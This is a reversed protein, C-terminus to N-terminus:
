LNYTSAISGKSTDGVYAPNFVVYYKNDGITNLTLAFNLQYGDMLNVSKIKNAFNTTFSEVSVGTVSISVDDKPATFYTVSSGGKVTYLQTSGVILTADKDSNNQFIISGTTSNVACTSLILAFVSAIVLLCFFRKM